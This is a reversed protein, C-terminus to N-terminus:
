KSRCVSCSHVKTINGKLVGDVMYPIDICIMCGSNVASRILVCWVCECAVCVDVYRIM